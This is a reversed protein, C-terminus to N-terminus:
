VPLKNTSDALRDVVDTVYPLSLINGIVPMSRMFSIAVPFFDGFLNVFGFAEVVIGIVPWGFLVLTMGSFFCASGKWRRRIFFFRVSRQMGIIMAVGSLFMVNGMALLRKDFLLLIGLFTFVLGISTLGIGIKKFDSMM